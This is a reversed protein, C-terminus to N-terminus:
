FYFLEALTAYSDLRVEDQVDTDGACSLIHGTDLLSLADHTDIVGSASGNKIHTEVACNRIVTGDKGCKKSFDSAAFGLNLYFLRETM